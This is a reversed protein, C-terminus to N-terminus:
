HVNDRTPSDEATVKGGGRAGGVEEKVREVSKTGEVTDM